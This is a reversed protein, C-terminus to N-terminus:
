YAAPCLTLLRYHLRPVSLALSLSVTTGTHTDRLDPYATRMNESKTYRVTNGPRILSSLHRLHRCSMGKWCWLCPARAALFVRQFTPLLCASFDSSFGLRWHSYAALIGLCQSELIQPLTAVFHSSHFSSWSPDPIGDCSCHRRSHILFRRHHRRSCSRRGILMQEM